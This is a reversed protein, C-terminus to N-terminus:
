YNEGELNLYPAVSNFLQGIEMMILTDIFGNSSKGELSDYVDVVKCPFLVDISWNPPNYDSAGDLTWYRFLDYQIELM